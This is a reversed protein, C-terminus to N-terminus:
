RALLLPPVPHRRRGRSGDAVDGRDDPERRADFGAVYQIGTGEPFEEEGGATKAFYWPTLIDVLACGEGTLWGGVRRFLRRQDEDDGIGFGDFYVVVDFPGGLDVEYFDGVLSRLFGREVGRALEAIYEALMTQLEITVVDHGAHALAVATSGTGAGLELIRKSGDGALRRVADVHPDPFRLTSNRM